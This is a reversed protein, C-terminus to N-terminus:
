ILFFLASLSSSFLTKQIQCFCAMQPRQQLLLKMPSTLPAASYMTDRTIFVQTPTLTSSHVKFGVKKLHWSKFRPSLYTLLILPPNLPQFLTPESYVSPFQLSLNLIHSIISSDLNQRFHLVAGISISAVSILVLLVLVLM